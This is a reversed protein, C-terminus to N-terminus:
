DEEGTDRISNQVASNIGSTVCETITKGDVKVTHTVKKRKEPAVEKRIAKLEDLIQKLLDVESFAIKRESQNELEDYKMMETGFVVRDIYVKTIEGTQRNVLTMVTDKGEESVNDVVFGELPKLFVTDYVPQKNSKSM